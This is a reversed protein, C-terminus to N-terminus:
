GSGLWDVLDVSSLPSPVIYLKCWMWVNCIFSFKFAQVSQEKNEFMRSNREMWITWFLCLLAAWWAKKVKKGVFSGQWGLLTEGVLSPLM